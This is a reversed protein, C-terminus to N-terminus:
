ELEKIEFSKRTTAKVKFESGNKNQIKLLFMM